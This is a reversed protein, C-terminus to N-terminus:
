YYNKIYKILEDKDNPLKGEIVKDLITNLIEGIKKGSYGLALLDNGNVKLTKINYCENEDNKITNFNEKLIDFNFDNKFNHDIRDAKKLDILYDMLLEQDKEPMLRMFKRMSKLKESFTYDHYEVLFSIKEIEDASYRLNKLNKLAIEKSVLEHGIYHYINNDKKDIQFCKTKGIDHFLASFKLIHNPEVGEVTSLTHNYLDNTHYKSRQNFDFMDRLDPIIEALIERIKKNKALHTFAIGCIMKDFEVKIREKSVFSLTNKLDYMADLTTSDIEFDLVSAFRLARLIRLADEDFRKYPDGVAKVIKNKIDDEGNYYDYLNGGIDFAMANITFDRRALDEKLNRTFHVENPHRHDSYDGDSRFTTIEINEHNYRVTVTGHKEGNNNIIKCSSFVEKIEEPLANTTVDYDNPAKDLLIDRVCGGVIYAEFGSNNLKELIFRINDPIFM